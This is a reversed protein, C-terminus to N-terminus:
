PNGTTSLQGDTDGIALSAYDKSARFVKVGKRENTVGNLGTITAGADPSPAGFTGAARKFSIAARTVSTGGGDTGVQKRLATFGSPIVDPPTTNLTHFAEDFLVIIDGGLIGTPLDITPGT